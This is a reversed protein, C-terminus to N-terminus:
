FPNFYDKQWCIHTFFAYNLHWGDSSNVDMSKLTTLITGCDDDDIVMVCEDKNENGEDGNM